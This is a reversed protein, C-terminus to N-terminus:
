VSNRYLCLEAAPEQVGTVYDHVSQLGEKLGRYNVRELCEDVTYWGYDSHEEPELQINVQQGEAAYVGILQM